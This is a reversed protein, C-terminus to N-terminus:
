FDAPELWEIMENEQLRGFWLVNGANACASKLEENISHLM